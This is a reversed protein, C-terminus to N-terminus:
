GATTRYRFTPVPRGPQICHLVQIRGSAKSGLADRLTERFATELERPTTEVRANVIFYVSRDDIRGDLRVSDEGHSATRNVALQGSAGNTLIKIHGISGNAGELRDCFVRMFDQSFDKWEPSGGATWGLEVTANLWGLVAEGRAYRDYNVEAIRTVTPQAHAIENIWEGVGEGTLSSVSCASANPFRSKLCTLLEERESEELADAKSLLIKDAEEMQKRLIYAADPHLTSGRSLFEERVRAPDVLVTLPAIEWEPQRQGLPHVITAALDTCSGVPEAVIWNAGGAVLSQAADMFGGFNCCFCSGAVERVDAGSRKLVATDVLEPAQDNTILGVKWGQGSLKGAATRLLTTKGSGLFGGVLVLKM